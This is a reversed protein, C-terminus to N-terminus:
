YPLRLFKWKSWYTKPESEALSIVVTKGIPSSNCNMGGQDDQRTGVVSLHFNCNSAINLFSASWTAFKIVALSIRKRLYVMWRLRTKTTATAILSLFSATWDRGLPRREPKDRSADVFRRLPIPLFEIENWTDSSKLSRQFARTFGLRRIWKTLM